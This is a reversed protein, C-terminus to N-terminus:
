IDVCLDCYFLISIHSALSRRFRKCLSTFCSVIGYTHDHLDKANDSAIDPAVIRGLLKTVSMTVHSAHEFNHFECPNYMSAIMEVYEHVQSKVKPDLDAALNEQNREMHIAANANFQPLEIIERVEDFLEGKVTDSSKEECHRVRDNWSAAAKVSIRSTRASLRRRQEIQKLLSVLLDTNWDVLRRQKEAVDKGHRSLRRSSQVRPAQEAHGRSTTDAHSSPGSSRSIASIVSRGEGGRINKLWYTQLEGKGKATVKDERPVVWHNKGRAALM